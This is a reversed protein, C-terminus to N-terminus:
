DQNLAKWLPTEYAPFYEANEQFFEYNLSFLNEQDSMVEGCYISQLVDSIDIIKVYRSKGSINIEYVQGVKIEM